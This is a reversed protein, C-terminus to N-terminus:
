GGMEGKGASRHFLQLTRLRGLKASDADHDAGPAVFAHGAPYLWIPTDVHRAKIAEVDTLPILEDTKGFHLITPCAPTEDLHAAIHGGYFLSAATLGACRAAAMWGATGGYCFGLAFVPGSLADIAAQIDACTVTWDTAAMYGAQRERAAEDINVEPFGRRHRDFLSPVITEYGDEAFSDALERLHPTVGWMAHLVVLGGRRADRARSHYADFSFGDAGSTLRITQGHYPAHAM